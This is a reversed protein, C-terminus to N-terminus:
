VGCLLCCWCFMQNFDPLPAWYHTGVAWNCWWRAASFSRPVSLRKLVLAPCPCAPDFHWCWCAFFVNQLAHLGCVLFAFVDLVPKAASDPWSRVNENSFRRLFGYRKEFSAHLVEWFSVSFPHKRSSNKTNKNGWNTVWKKRLFDVNRWLKSGSFFDSSGLPSPVSGINSMHFYHWYENKWTTRHAFIEKKRKVRVNTINDFLDDVQNFLICSTSVWLYRWHSLGVSIIYPNFLCYLIILSGVPLGFSRQSKNLM